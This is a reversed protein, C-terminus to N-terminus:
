CVPSSERAAASYTSVQSSLSRPGDVAADYNTVDANGPANYTSTAMAPDPSSAPINPTRMQRVRENNIGPQVIRYHPQCSIRSQVFFLHLSSRFRLGDWQLIVPIVPSLNPRYLWVARILLPYGYYNSSADQRSM